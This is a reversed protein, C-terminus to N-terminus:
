RDRLNAYARRENDRAQDVHSVIPPRVLTGTSHAPVFSSFNTPSQSDLDALRRFVDIPRISVTPRNPLPIFEAILSPDSAGLLHVDTSLIITETTGDWVVISRQAPEFVDSADATHNQNGPAMESKCPCSGHDAFSPPPVVAMLLVVMTAVARRLANRM